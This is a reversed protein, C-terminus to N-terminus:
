FYHGKIFISRIKLQNGVSTAFDITVRFDEVGVAGLGLADFVFRTGGTGSITKTTSNTVAQNAELILTCTASAGLVGTLVTVEDIYGKYRGNITPIVVSKWSSVTDYGSFKALKYSTSETSAVMPTGFPSALAGITAYGGDAIQSIQIPLDPSVSGCSWLNSGGVFLYTKRYLTKQAFNPLGGSFSALQKIQRGAVYGIHYGSTESLDQYALWIVGDVVDLFGIKLLGVGCEDDLVSKTVSGDYLYIQGRSRNTGTVGSNVAIYWFNAHFVVDSVVNGSGFDLKTLAITNTDGIYTGAYQGNGFVIIDEKTASPHIASQLAGYGIPGTPNVTSGWDPDIAETSIPMKLIDGGSSKNYFGYLNGGMQIVSEGDTCNTIVQPWSPTGGSTVTTPTIKFLKTAGIGYTVSDATPIELIHNILETVVGAQTGNTLTSLGPGQSLTGDLIDANVMVSASGSVGKQTLSNLHALPSFGANFDKLEIFFQSDKAM